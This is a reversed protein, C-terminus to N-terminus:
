TFFNPLSGDCIEYARSLSIDFINRIDKVTLMVKEKYEEPTEIKSFSVNNTIKM